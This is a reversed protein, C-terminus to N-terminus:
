KKKREFPFTKSVSTHLYMILVIGLTPTLKLRSKRTNYAPVYTYKNTSEIKLLGNQSWDRFLNLVM